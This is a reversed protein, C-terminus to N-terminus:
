GPLCARCPRHKRHYIYRGFYKWPLFCRRFYKRNFNHRRVSKRNLNYGKSKSRICFYGNRCAPQGPSAATDEASVLARLAPSGCLPYRRPMTQGSLIFLHFDLSHEKSKYEPVARQATQITKLLEEAIKDPEGMREIVQEIREGRELAAEIDSELDRRLRKREGPPLCSRQIIERIYQKANM